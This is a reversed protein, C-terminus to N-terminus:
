KTLNLYILLSISFIVLLPISLKRLFLLGKTLYEKKFYPITLTGADEGQYGKGPMTRYTIKKRFDLDNRYKFYTFFEPLSFFIIFILFPIKYITLVDRSFIGVMFFVLLATHVITFIYKYTKDSWYVIPKQQPFKVVEPHKRYLLVYLFITILILVLAIYSWYQFDILTDIFNM